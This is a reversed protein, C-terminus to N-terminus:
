QVSQMAVTVVTHIVSIYSHAPSDNPMTSADVRPHQKLLLAAAMTTKLKATKKYGLLPSDEWRCPLM